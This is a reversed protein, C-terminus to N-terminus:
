VRQPSLSAPQEINVTLPPLAADPAVTIVGRLRVITRKLDAPDPHEEFPLPLPYHVKDFEGQYTLILYRKNNVVTNAPLPVDHGSRRLRKAKLVELDSYTLLDISVSDSTRKLSSVLMKIFVPYPKFNGTKGTIETIDAVVAGTNHLPDVVHRETVPPQFHVCPPTMCESSFSGKWQSANSEQEVDVYLTNEEVTFVHVTYQCGHFTASVQLGFKVPTHDSEPVTVLVVVRIAPVCLRMM